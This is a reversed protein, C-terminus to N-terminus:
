LSDVTENNGEQLINYESDSRQTKILFFEEFDVPIEEVFLPSLKNIKERFADASGQVILTAVRGTIDCKIADSAFDSRRVAHPFAIQFKHISQLNENLDGGCVTKGESILAFHTCIDSLERLSHSAIVATCGADDCMDILARKFFLRAGPDLGDFAEDLLLYRPQSAIALALFLQRKMGKSFNRIPANVNLSFQKCWTAFIGKSFPYYASYLRELDKGTTNGGYYPEDPLFFINRKVGENEFVNQGDYKIEGGDARLVGAMLRLLTSKGAGNIGVVGFVCGTPIHANAGSLAKHRGYSKSVDTLEIM